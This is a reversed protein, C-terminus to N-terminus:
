TGQAKLSDQDKHPFEMPNTVEQPTSLVRLYCCLGLSQCHPGIFYDLYFQNVDFNSFPIAVLKM